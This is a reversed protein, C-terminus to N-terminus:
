RTYTSWTFNRNLMVQMFNLFVQADDFYQNCRPELLGLSALM